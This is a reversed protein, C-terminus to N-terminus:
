DAFFYPFLEFEDLTDARSSEFLLMNCTNKTRKAKRGVGGWGDGAGGGGGGGGEGAGQRPGNPRASLKAMSLKALTLGLKPNSSSPIKRGWKERKMKCSLRFIVRNIKEETKESHRNSQWVLANCHKGSLVLNLDNESRVSQVTKM